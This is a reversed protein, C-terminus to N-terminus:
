PSSNISPVPQLKYPAVNDLITSCHSNFSEVLCDIDAQPFLEASPNFTASFQGATLHNLIHSCKLSKSPLSDLKFSLNFLVCSHDTIPLVESCISDISLGHTFVLDLTHGRIHTLGSVYQFFNFSETVNLFDADFSCTVDDVHINFDGVM